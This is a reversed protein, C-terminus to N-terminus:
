GNSQEKCQTIAAQLEKNANDMDIKLRFLSRRYNPKAWEESMKKAAKLLTDRQKVLDEHSNEENGKIEEIAYVPMAQEHLNKEKAFLDRDPYYWGIHIRNEKIQKHNDKSM